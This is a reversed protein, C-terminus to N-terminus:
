FIEEELKTHVELEQIIQDCIRKRAGNSKAQDFKKFFGEVKRHDQRIMQIANPM